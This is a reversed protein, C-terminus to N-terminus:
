NRITMCDVDNRKLYKCAAEAQDKGLGAFRARYYTTNGKLVTETFPDASALLRAAKSKVTDLQQKAVEEAPYAGVQIMWGSRSIKPQPATPAASPQPAPAASPAAAPAPGPLVSAVAANAVPTTLVGLIGPRAGAPPVPADNKAVAPAPAVAQAPAAQEGVRPPFSPINVPAISATQVAAGPKVTLTKVTVPQIPDTSGPATARPAPIAATTVPEARVPTSTASAVAYRPAAPAAAAPAAATKPASRDPAEAIMPATRKVAAEEIHGEILARMRADRSGGSGGGLVVAVIHRGGRKVSSVLNFGSARTYGTKIGDVGEVRGLLRNHNRISAGRYSFSSIAFYRYHRPFREQIARGLTAQDRATTVQEDDPLGSANKYVTRSMGLAQAKRTMLDAFDDEDGAINEAIVVAVDNASRTILAKIADEVRITQGPRVGLKTPPQSAADESVELPSDLTLKGSELREFLLYLTMIKTLSAPHREADPQAAHLVAGSNADVVIAAYRADHVISAAPRHYARKRRSRADADDVTVAAFAIITALCFL